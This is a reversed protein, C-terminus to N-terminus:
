PLPMGNHEVGDLLWGAARKGVRLLTTGDSQYEYRVGTLEALFAATQYDLPAYTGAFREGPAITVEGRQIMGLWEDADIWEGWQKDFFAVSAAACQDRISRKWAALCGRAKPGSEGGVIVWDLGDNNSTISGGLREIATGITTENDFKRIPVTKKPIRIQMTGFFNALNIEGLLPELSVFRVAAPTALLDPIRADANAQDEASVGKWCNPLPWELPAAVAWQKGQGINRAQTDSIGFARGLSAGSEGAEFRHRIEAAQEVTLKSYRRYTGHRKSDSWNAEQDGWVLNSAANNEPNRDIHRGQSEPAPAPGVFAELVLRHVLIREYSKDGNRYLTVRLHGQDGADPKLRRRAGRKESYIHGHSSVFYGPYGNIPKIEEQGISQLAGIEDMARAVRYPTQENCCYERMRKARKTLVQFWYQPCLAMVAFMRDIMEDTVFDAFTDSMSNVFIMRPKKWRLPLTLIKEDLFFEIDKRHGPKFDLHTGLRRNIDEAYCYRCGESVHECHWGIKGTALNRARLPNWMSDTWEIASRDGM